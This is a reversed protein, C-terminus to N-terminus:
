CFGDEAHELATDYVTTGVQLNPEVYEAGSAVGNNAVAYTHGVAELELPFGAYQVEENVSDGTALAYTHGATDPATEAYEYMPSSAAAGGGPSSAMPVAYVVDGSTQVHSAPHLEDAEAYLPHASADSYAHDSIGTAQAYTPDFSGGDYIQQQLSTPELYLNGAGTPEAKHRVTTRINGGQAGDYIAPQLESPVLYSVRNGGDAKANDYIEQQQESPALYLVGAAADPTPMRNQPQRANSFDHSFSPNNYTSNFVTAGEGVGDGASKRKVVWWVAAAVAALVILLVAVVAGAAGPRKKSGQAATWADAGAGAVSDDTSGENGHLATSNSTSNSAGNGGGGGGGDGDGDGPATAGGQGPVKM